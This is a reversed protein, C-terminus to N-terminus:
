KESGCHTQLMQNPTMIVNSLGFDSIKLLDNDGLLLNEPKMDRCACWM